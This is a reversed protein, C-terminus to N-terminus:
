AMGMNEKIAGNGSCSRRAPMRKLVAVAKRSEQMARYPQEGELMRGNAIFQRAM